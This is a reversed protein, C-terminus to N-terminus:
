TRRFRNEAIMRLRWTSRYVQAAQPVFVESWDDHRLLSGAGRVSYHGINRSILHLAGSFENVIMQRQLVWGQVLM